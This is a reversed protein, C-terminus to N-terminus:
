GRRMTVNRTQATSRAHASFSDVRILAEAPVQTGFSRDSPFGPIPTGFTRKYASVFRDDGFVDLHIHPSSTKGNSGGTDGVEGLITKGMLVPQGVKVYIRNMHLYRLAFLGVPSWSRVVVHRGASSDNKNDVYIVQGSSASDFPTGVPAPIDIGFHTGNRYTRPDGWGSSVTTIPLPKGIIAGLVRPERLADVALVALAASASGFLITTPTLIM